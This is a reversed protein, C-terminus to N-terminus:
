RVHALVWISWRVRVCSFKFRFSFRFQTERNQLIADICWLTIVVVSLPRYTCFRILVFSCSRGNEWTCRCDSCWLHRWPERQNHENMSSQVGLITKHKNVSTNQRKIRTRENTRENPTAVTNDDLFQQRRGCKIFIGWVIIFLLRLGDWEVQKLETQIIGILNM